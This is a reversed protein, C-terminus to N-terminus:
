CCRGGRRRRAAAVACTRRTERGRTSSSAGRRAPGAAGLHQHRRPDDPGPEARARLARAASRAAPGARPREDACGRRSTRASGVLRDPMSPLRGDDDVLPRRSWPDRPRAGAAAALVDAATRSTACSRCTCYTPPLMLMEGRTSPAGIAERVPLWVGRRGRRVDRTVQGAPLAAVFFRTDFRQPEFEPTIWHGVARLLDTRLVLGRRDLFTPSPARPGRARAPRGGLRRRHHRRGRLGRDPGALLM